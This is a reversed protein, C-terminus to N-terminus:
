GAKETLVIKIDKEIFLFPGSRASKMDGKRFVGLQGHPNLIAEIYFEGTLLEPLLLEKKSISFSVPFSPDIIKKVAVPVGKNNLAVIFLMLNPKRASKAFDPSLSIEGSLFMSHRLIHPWAKFASFALASFLLLLLILKKM